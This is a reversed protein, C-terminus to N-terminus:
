RNRATIIPQYYGSAEPYHWTVEEFGAERVAAIVEDHLLARLETEFHKVEYRGDIEKILFQNNRYHRGDDAWDWLQFV